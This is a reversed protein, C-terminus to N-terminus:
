KEDDEENELVGNLLAEMEKVIPTMPTKAFEKILDITQKTSLISNSDVLNAQGLIKIVSVLENHNQSLNLSDEVAFYIEDKLKIKFKIRNTTKHNINQSETAYRKQDEDDIMEYLEQFTYSLKNNNMFTKFNETAYYLKEQYDYYLAMGEQLSMLIHVAKKYNYLSTLTYDYNEKLKTLVQLKDSYIYVNLGIKLNKFYIAQIFCNYNAFDYQNKTELDFQYMKYKSVVKDLNIIFQELTNQNYAENNLKVVKLSDFLLQWSKSKKIQKDTLKTLNLLSGSYDVIKNKLNLSLYFDTTDNKIHELLKKNRTQKFIFHLYLYLNVLILYLYALIMLLYFWYITPLNLFIIVILVVLSIITILDIKREIISKSITTILLAGFLVAYLIIEYKNVMQYIALSQGISLINM